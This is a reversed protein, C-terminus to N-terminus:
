KQPPEFSESWEVSKKIIVVIPITPYLEFKIDINPLTIIHTIIINPNYSITVFLM